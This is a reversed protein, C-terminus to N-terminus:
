ILLYIRREYPNKTTQELYEMDIYWAIQLWSLYISVTQKTLKIYKWLEHNTLTLYHKNNQLSLMMIYLLKEKDKLIPNTIIDTDFMTYWKPNVNKFLNVVELENMEKQIEEESTTIM